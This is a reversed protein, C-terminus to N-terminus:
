PLFWTHRILSPLSYDGESKVFRRKNEKLLYLLGLINVKLHLCFHHLTCITFLILLANHSALPVESRREGVNEGEGYRAKM